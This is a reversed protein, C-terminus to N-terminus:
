SGDEFFGGPAKNSVKGTAKIELKGGTMIKEKSGM